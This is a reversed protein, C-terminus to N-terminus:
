KQWRILPLELPILVGPNHPLVRLTYDDAPRADPVSGTCGHPGSAADEPGFSMPVRVPEHSSLPDAYIEVRVSAPQIAGLYVEAHFVHAKDAHEVTVAGFHVEDWHSRMEREWAVLGAAGAAARAAYLSALPLYHDETYQRVARNSSFAPSLRSMSERMRNTWGTAIGRPDRDYFAPIVEQELLRYLVDAEAADWAPDSDHEKGDGIAWGAQPSYAEAWWGDLESVNLGGNPLVKMGSTGCAEWPRRPTNIWVDVGTVLRHGMLADYDSLFVAHGRAERRIIFDNWRKIIAQGPLDQPHAKGALILQVPRERNTLIRILREPDHLLLDPRKYTAFRRAFGLTLRNEDLIQRAEDIEWQPAGRASREFALRQRAYEVLSKRENARLQWLEEDGCGRIQDEICGQDGRWRDKGCCRTWLEDAEASDWTPIHIGNTVHGIPVEIEPWRPYLGQFLKRSVAGHLRSVGNVAGSGRIALYAMNFPESADDPNRRGLAMLDHLSIKLRDQAYHQFYTAMMEPSFRDFGAEVPTHTTFLNGARTVALAEDFPLNHEQMYARARELVVFAAHGENLHCVEPQIGLARLLRWGCIGLVMEQRLRM